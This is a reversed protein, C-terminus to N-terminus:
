LAGQPDTVQGSIAGTTLTQAALPLAVCCFTLLVYRVAVAVAKRCQIKM